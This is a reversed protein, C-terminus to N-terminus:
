VKYIKLTVENIKILYFGSALHSINIQEDSTFEGSLVTRGELSVIKVQIKEAAINAISFYDKMPNPYIFPLSNTTLKDSISTLPPTFVIKRIVALPVSTVSGIGEDVFLNTEDFYVRGVEDNVLFQQETGDKCVVTLPTQAM